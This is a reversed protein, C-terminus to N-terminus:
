KELLKIYDKFYMVVLADKRDIKKIYVRTDKTNMADLVRWDNPTNKAYHKCQFAYDGTRVLDVGRDDADKSMLRATKVEPFVGRLEKACVREFHSGKQKSNPM